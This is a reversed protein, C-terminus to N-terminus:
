SLTDRWRASPGAGAGRVVQEAVSGALLRTIGGQGHTAMAILDVLHERSYALIAEAAAGVVVITRVALGQDHVGEAMRQLYARAETQWHVLLQEDQGRVLRDVADDAVVPNIAQLLTCEAHMVAGLAVAPELIAEALTSGDLPILIQKVVQERTLDLLDLAETHPRVLLVPMPAQRVLKGAISGLWMRAMGGRGHTTMVILDCGSAVAHQHLTAAVSAEEDLLTATVTLEWDAALRQAVGVLYEHEPERAAADM